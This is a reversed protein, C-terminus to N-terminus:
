LPKHAIFISYFGDGDELHSIKSFGSESLMASFEDSSYKYSNETHISEGKRFNIKTGDLNLSLKATCDLYMEIRGLEENYKARHLFTDPPIYVGFENRIRDILNLNFKATVGSSDNYARELVSPDKKLDVGILFSDGPNLWGSCGKLFALADQVEMNGITSGLFVLLNPGKDRDIHLSNSNLYDSCVGSVKLDPFNKHLLSLATQLPEMSIDLLTYEKLSALCRILHMSKMGSGSGFELAHKPHNLNKSLEKCQDTLISIESRTLYYEPLRTIEDFLRSGNADYFFKPHIWKAEASLSIKIEGRFDSLAPKLDTINDKSIM